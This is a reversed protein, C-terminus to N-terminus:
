INPNLTPRGDVGMALCTALRPAATYPVISATECVTFLSIAAVDCGVGYWEAGSYRVTCENPVRPEGQAWNTFTMEKVNDSHCLWKGSVTEFRCGIWVKSKSQKAMEETIFDNEERSEIVLLKAGRDQCSAKAEAWKQKSGVAFNYCSSGFELWDNDPPPCMANIGLFISLATIVVTKRPHTSGSFAAM